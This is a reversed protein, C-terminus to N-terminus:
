HQGGVPQSGRRGIGSWIIEEKREKGKKKTSLEGKEEDDPHGNGKVSSFGKCSMAASKKTQSLPKRGEGLMFRTLPSGQSPVTRKELL